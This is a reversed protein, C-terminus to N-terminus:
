DRSSAARAAIRRLLRRTLIVHGGSGIVAARYLRGRLHPFVARTEAQLTRESLVLTLAYQSFRHRGALALRHGPESEIVEFGPVTDGAAGTFRASRTAPVCGLWRAASAAGSSAAFTEVLATWVADRSGHVPVVHVDVVPLDAM